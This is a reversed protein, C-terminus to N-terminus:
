NDYHWLIIFIRANLFSVPNVLKKLGRKLVYEIISQYQISVSVLRIKLLSLRLVRECEYEKSGSLLLTAPRMIAIMELDSVSYVDSDDWCCDIETTKQMIRKTLAM